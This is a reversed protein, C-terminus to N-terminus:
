EAEGIEETRPSRNSIRVPRLAKRDIGFKSRKPNIRKTKRQRRKKPPKATISELSEGETVAKQLAQEGLSTISVYKVLKTRLGEGEPDRSELRHNFSVLGRNELSNLTSGGIQAQTKLTYAGTEGHLKLYALAYKQRAMLRLPNDKPIRGM